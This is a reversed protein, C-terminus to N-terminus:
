GMICTAPVTATSVAEELHEGRRQAMPSAPPDAHDRQFLTFLLALSPLLVALGVVSSLTVAQLTAHAAAAQDVSLETLPHPYQGYGWAWLVAAVAAAATLRVLGYRRGVLLALSGLGMALSIIVLPLGRHSLQRFLSPADDRVVLLSAVAVAGVVAGAILACRRYYDTLDAQGTRRAEATLYIAALYACVGIALVGCSVSTPNAWSTVVGGQALGPKVRGSAVAGAIAGLFFPTVVSSLAFSAGFLRQLWLEEVVKRFAFASGRAIIGIAVLSLPIWLTSAVAAFLPPFATWSIVLVYILWVHNAEWVPGITHAILARRRRGVDPTGAVLDWFGAGFDAGAFLAYATVSLWVLVLLATALDV